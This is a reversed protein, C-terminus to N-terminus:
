CRTYVLRSKDESDIRTLTNGEVSWIMPNNWDMGEGQFDFQGHIRTDSSSFIKQPRAVSEYFRIRDASITVLGKADGRQSTCDAQNLGWRGHLAAPIATAPNAATANSAPPTDIAGTALDESPTAVSEDAPLVDVDAPAAAQNAQSAGDNDGCAGLMLAAASALIAM